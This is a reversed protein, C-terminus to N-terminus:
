GGCISTKIESATWEMKEFYVIKLAKDERPVRGMVIDYEYNVTGQVPFRLLM